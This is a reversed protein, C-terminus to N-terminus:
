KVKNLVEKLEGPLDITFTQKDGALDYFSLKDAVLFVRGLNLKKNQERTKKTSYLDDGVLPHGYSLMHVRIQHTRGTKIKVKLLTYNIFKKIIKFGTIARRVGPKDVNKEERDTIPLAAMKSGDSSRKLPFLINDEDKGIQGYVLATYEKEMTRKQFQNKLNNFSDQTKAIVVLGSVEKDLRHVIGPREPDEGVKKLEPYKKVLIEALSEEKFPDTGHMVLGAPKNIVLYEDTEAIIEPFSFNSKKFILFSDKAAPRVPSSVMIEDGEKLNYHSSVIKGSATVGGQKIIKQIQSRSFDPLQGALFKDLREGAQKTTIRLKEM